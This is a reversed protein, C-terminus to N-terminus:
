DGIGTVVATAEQVLRRYDDKRPPVSVSDKRFRMPTRLEFAKALEEFVADLLEQSNSKGNALLGLTAGDLTKPRRAMPRKDKGKLPGASPDLIVYPRAASTTM